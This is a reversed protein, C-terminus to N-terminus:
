QYEPRFCRAIGQELTVQPEYLRLMQTPDGVRTHVGTPADPRTEIPWLDGAAAMCKTALDRFSTGSGTCLNVPGVPDRDLGAFVAGVIDDVHIWDRVQTGDGWVVFPDVREKARQIFSPFPYDLDQDPGYGSFPRYIDVALGQRRAETALREGTLKAWGYTQDPEYDILKGDLLPLAGPYQQFTPYVASSSWYVFRGTGTRLAWRFADVDLGMNTAVALPDGDIKARGGVIAACHFVVDFRTDDEAFFTAADDGDVLDVGTVSWSRATCERHLHRGIFGRHGTILVRM